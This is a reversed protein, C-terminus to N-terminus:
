PTVPPAAKVAPDIMAAIRALLETARVDDGDAGTWVRITVLCNQEQQELEVTLTRVGWTLERTVRRRGSMEWPWRMAFTSTQQLKADNPDALKRLADPDDLMRKVAADVADFRAAYTRAVPVGLSRGEGGTGVPYWGIMQCGASAAVIILIFTTLPSHGARLATSPGTRLATSPHATLPRLSFRM